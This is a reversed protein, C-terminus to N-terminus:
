ATRTAFAWSGPLRVVNEQTRTCVDADLALAIVRCYCQVHMGTCPVVFSTFM